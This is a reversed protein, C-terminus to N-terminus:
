AQAVPAYTARAADWLWAGHQPDTRLVPELDPWRDLLFGLDQLLVNDPDNIEDDSEDGVMARWGSDRESDPAERYLYEPRLDQDHCRRSVFVKKDLLPWDGLTAIIHEPGFDVRDGVSITTIAHPTNMLAGVYRGGGSGLVQVWMREAGPDSPAPDIIEFLLKAYDGPQLTEREARPPIFFSRPAQAHLDEGDALRYTVNREPMDVDNM